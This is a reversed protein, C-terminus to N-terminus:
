FFFAVDAVWFTPTPLPPPPPPPPSAPPPPSLRSPSPSSAPPLPSAPTSGRGSAAGQGRRGTVRPLDQCGEQEAPTAPARGLLVPGRLPASRVTSGAQQTEHQAEPSRRLHCHLRSHRNFMGRGAPWPAVRSQMGSLPGM